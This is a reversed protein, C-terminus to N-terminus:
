QKSLVMGFHFPLLVMAPKVVEFRKRDIWQIVQDPTPRISLDPGRPTVIDSRWHAIGLLGGPVLIRYAEDLFELPSESHLINFLMVYDVSQDPLGTTETLVDRQEPIVNEINLIKLKQMLIEIMENEIDYTHLTGNIKKAAPITFTGYGCGIEVLKDISHNILMESLILDVDFYSEWQEESPMGSDRVKMKQNNIIESNKYSLVIVSTNLDNQIL